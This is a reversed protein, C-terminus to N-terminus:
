AYLLLDLKDELDQIQKKSSELTQLTHLAVFMENGIKTDVECQLTMNTILQQADSTIKALDNETLYARVRPLRKREGDITRTGFVFMQNVLSILSQQNVLVTSIMKQLHEAFESLIKDKLKNNVDDNDVSTYTYTALSECEVEDSSDFKCIFLPKQPITENKSKNKEYIPIDSFRKIHEPVSTEGTFAEYFRKLDHEFVQKTEDSMGLFTGTEADYDTDFYLDYLEPIGYHNGLTDVENVNTNLQFESDPTEDISKLTKAFKQIRSGCFSIQSMSFDSSLIDDTDGPITEKDGEPYIALSIAVLVRAINLYFACVDHKALQEDEMEGNSVTKIRKIKSIAVAPQIEKTIKEVLADSKDTGDKTNEDLYKMNANLIISAAIFDLDDATVIDIEKMSTDSTGSSDLISTSVTDVINLEPRSDVSEMTSLTNGM